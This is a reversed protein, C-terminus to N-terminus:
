QSGGAVHSDIHQRLEAITFSCETRRIWERTSLLRPGHDSKAAGNTVLLEMYLICQTDCHDCSWVLYNGHSEFFASSLPMHAISPSASNPLVCTHTFPPYIQTTKSRLLLLFPQKDNM